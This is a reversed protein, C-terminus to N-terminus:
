LGLVDMMDYAGSVKDQGWLVVKLVGRVFIVCDTALYCLVIWEGAAAFIVDHEGVIDGGRIVSFGIDGRARVGIMGDCCVDCVDFLMVGRGMAVAEGLMLVTGSFM